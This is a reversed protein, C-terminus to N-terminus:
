ASASLISTVFFGRFLSIAVLLHSLDTLGLPFV